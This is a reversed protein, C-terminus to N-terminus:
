NGYTISWVLRGYLMSSVYQMQNPVWGKWRRAFRGDFSELMKHVIALSSVDRITQPQWRGLQSM